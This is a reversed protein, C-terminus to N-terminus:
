VNWTLAACCLAGAMFRVSLCHPVDELVSELRAICCPGPLGVM